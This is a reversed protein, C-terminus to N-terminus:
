TNPLTGFTPLYRLRVQELSRQLGGTCVQKTIESLQWGTAQPTTFNSGQLV